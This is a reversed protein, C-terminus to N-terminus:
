TSCRFVAFNTSVDAAHAFWLCVCVKYRLYQTLLTGFCHHVLPLCLTRWPVACAFEQYAVHRAALMLRPFWDGLVRLVVPKTGYDLAGVNSGSDARSVSAVNFSLVWIADTLSCVLASFDMCPFTTKPPENYINTELLGTELLEELTEFALETDIDSLRTLPKKTSSSELTTLSELLPRLLCPMGNEIARLCLSICFKPDIDSKWGKSIPFCILHLALCFGLQSSRALYPVTEELASAYSSVLDESKGNSAKLRNTEYALYMESAMATELLRVKEVNEKSCWDQQLVPPTQGNKYQCEMVLAWRRFSLRETVSLLLICCNEDTALKGEKSQEFTVAKLVRSLAIRFRPESLLSIATQLQAFEQLQTDKYAEEEPSEIKLSGDAQKKPKLPNEGYEAEMMQCYRHYQKELRKREKRFTEMIAKAYPVLSPEFEECNNVILKVDDEVQDFSTYEDLQEVMKQLYMPQTIKELYRKKIDPYKVWPAKTFEDRNDQDKKILRELCANLADRLNLVKGNRWVNPVKRKSTIASARTQNKVADYMQQRRTQAAQAHADRFRKMCGAVAKAANIITQSPASHGTAPLHDYASIGSLLAKVLSAHPDQNLIRELALVSSKHQTTATTDRDRKQLKDKKEQLAGYLDVRVMLFLPNNTSRYKKVLWFCILNYLDVNEGIASLLNGLFDLPRQRGLGLSSFPEMLTACSYM